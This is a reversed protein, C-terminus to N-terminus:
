CYLHLFYLLRKNTPADKLPM